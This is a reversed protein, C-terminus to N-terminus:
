ASGGRRQRGSVVPLEQLRSGSVAWIGMAASLVLAVPAAIPFWSTGEALWLIVAAGAALRMLEVPIAWRRGEFMAGWTALAALLPIGAVVLTSVAARQQALIFGTTGLVVTVFSVIVYAAWPSGQGTDYKRQAARSVEPIRVTGGLAAPRWEPPMFWVRLRDSWRPSKAALRALEVWAQVNAWLPNWSQLPKVTGYVPEQEEQQFTGFLKDWIIFVGAYNKDIYKPDIGHHVRHHSPTNLVWELPGLKGVARTHIWFQYLINLTKVAVFMLPPFGAIALPLYFVWDFLPYFWSQRLAVSLNYEESQHHVVHTAWLLNVRHSARHFVYYGLDVGFLLVVWGVVSQVPVTTLRLREYVWSYGALAALKLFVDFLQQGIGCSLNTISDALQYRADGQRVNVLLEVGILLFFLPIAAAVFVPDM